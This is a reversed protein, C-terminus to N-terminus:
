FSDQERILCAFRSNCVSHKTDAPGGLTVSYAKGQREPVIVLVFIDVNTLKFVADERRHSARQDQSAGAPLEESTPRACVRM